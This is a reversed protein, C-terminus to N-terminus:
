SWTVAVDMVSSAGSLGNVHSIAYLSEYYVDGNVLGTNWSNNLDLAGNNFLDYKYCHNVAFAPHDLPPMQFYHSDRQYLRDRWYTLVWGSLTGSHQM